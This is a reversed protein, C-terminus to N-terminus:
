VIVNIDPNYGQLVTGAAIRGDLKGARDPDRRFPLVQDPVVIVIALPIGIIYGRLFLNAQGSVAAHIEVIFLIVM